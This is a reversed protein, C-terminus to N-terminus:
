GLREINHIRLEDMNVTRGALRLFEQRAAAENPADVRHNGRAGSALSYTVMYPLDESVENSNLSDAASHTRRRVGFKLPDLGPNMIGVKWIELLGLAVADSAAQFPYVSNNTERSYIEFNGDYNMGPMRQAALERRSQDIVNGSKMGDDHRKFQLDKLRSKLDGVPLQKAVYRSFISIVDDEGKVGSVLLKYLKKAYEQRESNPDMAISLAMGYRALTDQLLKLDDMYNEGGASRFEVYGNKPNISTYKGYGTSQGVNKRAIENLGERMRKMYEALRAPDKPAENRIKKLAATTYNNAERGFKELVYEDGLFLALKVYDLKSDDHDPMSVSMHFGTSDNVYGNNAKVWKFFEPIIEVTKDLPMPPSVIEVPMDDPDNPELSSDPEFIWTKDDRRAQHYGGSVRTEVGLTRTLDEALDEAASENFEGGDGGYNIYYPWDLSFQDMISSMYRWDRDSLWDEQDFDGATDEMYRDQAAYFEENQEDIATQVREDIMEHLKETTEQRARRYDEYAPNDEVFQRRDQSSSLRRYQRNLDFLQEIEEENLEMEDTMYEEILERELDDGVEDLIYERIHDEAEEGFQEHMRDNSWEYYDDLLNERLRDQERPTLSSYESDTFFDMIDDISRPRRDADYDPELDGGSGSGGVGEFVVEAEFGARMQKALPTQLFKAFDSSGMRVEDLQEDSKTQKPEFQYYRV